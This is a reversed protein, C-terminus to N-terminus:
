TPTVSITVPSATPTCEVQFTVTEAATQEPKAVTLEFTLPGSKANAQPFRFTESTTPLAKTVTVTRSQTAGGVQQVQYDIASPGTTLTVTATVEVTFATCDGQRSGTPLVLAASKVEPKPDPPPATSPTTSSPTPGTSKQRPEAGKTSASPSPSPPPQTPVQIPDSQIVSSSSRDTDSTQHRTAVQRAVLSGAVVLVLIALMAALGKRRNGAGGAPTEAPFQPAGGAVGPPSERSQSGPSAAGAPGPQWGLPTASPPANTARSGGPGPQWGLPEARPPAEAASFSATSANNPPDGQVATEASGSPADTSPLWDLPPPTFEGSRTASDARDPGPENVVRQLMTRARPRSLREDPDKALLGDLVPTLRGARQPRPHPQIATAFLGAITEKATFPGIGEVAFYLTAGLAFLDGPPGTQGSMLREPAIYGPSGLLAGTRTLTEAGFVSAISFDTLLATGDRTVLVNQPKVDRHVINAAHAAALADLLQIGLAAATAAELPGDEAVLQDLSRGDVLRMIIYPQENEVIVDHVPVINPHDLRAASQAEVMARKTLQSREEPTVTSPFRIEKVAISRGLRQDFARWVVGMGGSGVVAELRYRGDILRQEAM